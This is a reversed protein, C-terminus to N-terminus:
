EVRFFNLGNEPRQQQPNHRAPSNPISVKIEDYDEDDEEHAATLVFAKAEQISPPPPPPQPTPSKFYTGQPLPAPRKIPPPPSAAPKADQQIIQQQRLTYLIRTLLYVITGVALPWAALALENFFAHAGMGNEADILVCATNVVGCFAFLVSVLYGAILALLM